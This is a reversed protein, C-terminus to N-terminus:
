FYVRLIGAVQLRPTVWAHKPCSRINLQTIDSLQRQRHSTKLSVNGGEPILSYLMLIELTFNESLAISVLDNCRKVLTVMFKRCLTLESVHM